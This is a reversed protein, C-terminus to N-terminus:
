FCLHRFDRCDVSTQIMQQLFLDEKGTINMSFLNELVELEVESFYEEEFKQTSIPEWLFTNSNYCMKRKFKEFDFDFVVQVFPLPFYGNLVLFRYLFLYIYTSTITKPFLYEGYKQYYNSSIYFILNEMREQFYPQYCLSMM